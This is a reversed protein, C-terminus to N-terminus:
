KKLRKRMAGRKMVVAQRNRVEYRVCVQMDACPYKTFSDFQCLNGLDLKNLVLEVKVGMVPSLRAFLFCFNSCKNSFNLCFCKYHIEYRTVRKIKVLFSKGNNKYLFTKYRYM